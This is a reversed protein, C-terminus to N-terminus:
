VIQYYKKQWLNVSKQIISRVLSKLTLKLNIKRKFKNFASGAFPIPTSIRKALAFLNSRM